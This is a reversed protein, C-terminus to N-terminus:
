LYYSYYSLLSELSLGVLMDVMATGGALDADSEENKTPAVTPLPPTRPASM